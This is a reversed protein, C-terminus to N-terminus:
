IMASGPAAPTALAASAACELAASAVQGLAHVGADTRGAGRVRAPAGSIEGLASELVGQVTRAPRPGSQVQWGEFGAGAYELVLRVRRSGSM